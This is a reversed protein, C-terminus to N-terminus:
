RIVPSKLRYSVLIKVELFGSFQDFNFIRCHCNTLIIFCQSSRMRLTSELIILLYTDTTEFSTPQLLIWFRYKQPFQKLSRELHPTIRKKFATNGNSFLDSFKHVSKAYIDSKSSFMCKANLGQFFFLDVCDYFYMRWFSLTYFNASKLTPNQPFHSPFSTSPPARLFKASDNLCCTSFMWTSIMWAALVLSQNERLRRSATMILAMWQHSM